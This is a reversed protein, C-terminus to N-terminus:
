SACNHPAARYVACRQRQPPFGLMPLLGRLAFWVSFPPEFRTWWAFTRTLIIHHAPLCASPTMSTPTMTSARVPGRPFGQRGSAAPGTTAINNGSRGVCVCERLRAHVRVGGGVCVRARARICTQEHNCTQKRKAGCRLVKKMGAIELTTAARTGQIQGSSTHSM